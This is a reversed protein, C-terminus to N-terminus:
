ANISIHLFYFLIKAPSLPLGCVIRPRCCKIFQISLNIWFIDNKPISTNFWSIHMRTRYVILVFFLLLLLSSFYRKNSRFHRFQRPVLGTVVCTQRKWNERRFVTYLSYIGHQQPDTWYYIVSSTLIHYFCLLPVSVQPEHAVKKTRIVNQRWRNDIVSCVCPLM